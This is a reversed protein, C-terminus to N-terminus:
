LGTPVPYDRSGHVLIGAPAVIYIIIYIYIYIYNYVATSTRTTMPAESAATTRCAAVKEARSPVSVTRTTRAGSRRQRWRQDIAAMMSTRCWSQGDGQPKPADETAHGMNTPQLKQKVKRILSLDLQAGGKATQYQSSGDAVFSPTFVLKARVARAELVCALQFSDGLSGRSSACLVSQAFRNFDHDEASEAHSSPLYSM